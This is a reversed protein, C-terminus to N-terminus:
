GDTETEDLPELSFAEALKTLKAVQGEAENLKKSCIGAMDVGETYLAISEELSLEGSELKDVIEELRSLATEFDQDQKKRPM